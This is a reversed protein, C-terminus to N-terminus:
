FSKYLGFLGWTIIFLSLCFFGVITSYERWTRWISHNLRDSILFTMLSLIPYFILIAGEQIWHWDIFLSENKLSISNLLTPIFVFPIPLFLSFVFIYVKRIKENERKQCLIYLIWFFCLILLVIGTIKELMELTPTKIKLKEDLFAFIALLIVDVVLLVRFKNLM